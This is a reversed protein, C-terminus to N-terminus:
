AHAPHAAQEQALTLIRPFAARMVQELQAFSQQYQQVPGGIPDVIDFPAGTLEALLYIRERLHPFEAQLAEQHHRAMTLILAYSALGQVASVDQARHHSLDLGAAQAIAGMQRDAPRGPRAWTGASAIEWNTDLGAQALCRQFLAAAVPSRCQNATCVFLIKPMHNRPLKFM